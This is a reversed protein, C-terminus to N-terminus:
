PNPVTYRNLQTSWDGNKVGVPSGRTGHVTNVLLQELPVLPTGRSRVEAYAEQELARFSNLSQASIVTFFAFNGPKDILLFVGQGATELSKGGAIRASDAEMRHAPYIAAVSSDNRLDYLYLYAERPGTNEFRFSLLDFPKWSRGSVAGMDMPKGEKRYWLGEPPAGPISSAEIDFCNEQKPTCREHHIVQVTIPASTSSSQALEEMAVRRRYGILNDKLVQHGQAPDAFRIRMREHVPQEDPKLVWVELSAQPDRDPLTDRYVVQGQADRKPQLAYVILQANDQRDTREFGPLQGEATTQGLCALLGRLQALLITQESPADGNIFVRVASGPYVHDTERLLDGPALPGGQLDGLSFSPYVETLTVTATQGKKVPAYKSGVTAGTLQGVELTVKQEVVQKVVVQGRWPLFQGGLIPADKGQGSLQPQQASNYNLDMWVRTRDFVQQWSQDPEAQALAETWYWTFLGHKTGQDFAMELAPKDDRAAGVSLIRAKPYASFQRKGQPHDAADAPPAARVTVEGRSVSGSHCSDSVFVVIERTKEGIQGLWDRIQDDLVDYRDVEEAKESRAAYSVWTQDKGSPEDGNLDPTQSGHGSYYVFVQDGPHSKERLTAFAQAIGRHTAQADLLTTISDQAGGFGFRQRLVQDIRAVDNKAGPLNTLGSSSYDSVGILLAHQAAQATSLVSILILFLTLALSQM